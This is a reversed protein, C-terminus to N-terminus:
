KSLEKLQEIQKRLEANEAEMLKYCANFGNSFDRSDSIRNLKALEDRKQKM